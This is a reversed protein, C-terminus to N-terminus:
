VVSRECECGGVLLEASVNYGLCVRFHDSEVTRVEMVRVGAGM